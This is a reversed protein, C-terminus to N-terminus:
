NTAKRRKHAIYGVFGGISVVILLIFPLNNLLIGTPTVDRYTNTWVSANTNIGLTLDTGVPAEAIELDDGAGTGPVTEGSTTTINNWVEASATYGLTGTEVLTYTTGSPLGSDDAHPAINFRLSENHKLTFTLTDSELKTKEFTVVVPREPSVAKVGDVYIYGTYTRDVTEDKVKQTEPRTFVPTFTFEKTTDAFEGAVKKAVSFNVLPNLENVFDPSAKPYAQGSVLPVNDDAEPAVLTPTTGNDNRVKRFGVNTVTTVVPTSVTVGDAEVANEVYVIMQYEALSYDMGNTSGATETITYVYVGAHLFTASALLDTTRVTQEMMGTVTNLTGGTFATGAIVTPTTLTPITATTDITGDPKMLGEKTIVFSFNETTDFVAGPAVNLTKSIIATAGTQKSAPPVVSASVAVVTGMVMTLALVGTVIKKMLKNM